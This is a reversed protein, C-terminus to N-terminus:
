IIYLYVSKYWETYSCNKYVDYLEHFTIHYVGYTGAFQNNFRQIYGAMYFIGKQTDYGYVLNDHPNNMRRFSSKVPIFYENLCIDVYFNKDIANIIFEIINQSLENLLELKLCQTYLLPNNFYYCNDRKIDIFFDLPVDHRERFDKKSIM